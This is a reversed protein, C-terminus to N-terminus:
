FLGNCIPFSPVTRESIKGNPVKCKHRGCPLPNLAKFNAM